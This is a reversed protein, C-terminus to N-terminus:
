ECFPKVTVQDMTPVLLSHLAQVAALVVAETGEDLAYRLLLPVEAECLRGMVSEEVLQEYEGQWARRMIRSLTQLSLVRQQLVASRCLPILELLTYGAAQVLFFVFM